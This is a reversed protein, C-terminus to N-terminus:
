EDANLEQALERVKESGGHTLSVSYKTSGGEIVFLETADQFTSKFNGTDYCSHRKCEERLQDAPVKGDSDSELEEGLGLLLGVNRMKPADGSGPITTTIVVQGDRRGFVRPYTDLASGSEPTEETTGKAKGREASSPASPTTEMRQIVREVISEWRDIQDEVFDQPGSFEVVGDAVSIRFRAQPDSM